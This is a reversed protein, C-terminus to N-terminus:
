ERTISEDLNLIVSALSTYAALDGADITGPAVSEGVDILAAAADADSSYTNRYLDLGERLVTLENETPQRGTALRFGHVIRPKTRSGGDEIMRQALNRAAEAYTVDNLLALAQLPTNTIGRRVICLDWGPSDFTTMTPPPVTRKRYTYLSRRYLNDGEAVKYPGEGAGGALEEWLGEPQYPKVSPGGIRRKLLGSVALANDRLVEATMRYRPASAYLTGAPDSELIHDSLVSSQRYTSSMAIRKLLGKVDWGSSVFDSALWDLLKPHTPPAGQLGFDESTKVLGRGFIMQWYRNVTVRATLPNRESVIWQALGLRNRPAEDPLPPLFAPIGPHLERTTDPADYAGRKLRYTPRPEKLEEMVMVTPISAKVYDSREKRVTRLRDGAEDIQFSHQFDFFDEIRENSEPSNAAILAVQIGNETLRVVDDEKLVEDFYRFDSLAGKFHAGTSRSGIRLPLDTHISDTLGDQEAKVPAPFGDIYVKVGDAKSSGDYTVCLHAWTGERLPKESVVKIANDPWANVIHVSIEGEDLILIDVGRHATADDMKSFLAGSGDRRVWMSVSYPRDREFAASAEVDIFAEPSGDFQLATGNLGDFASIGEPTDSDDRLDVTLAAEPVQGSSSQEKLRARWAEFEFPLAAKLQDISEQFSAISRDFEAVKVQSEFSPLSVIPGANGRTEEYFGRDATSNFFAFFEYFEEQSIPDYKHDHCRACGISLGLFMAGTTEVRDVINEIRWEDEISGGETNARNNRHFGTAIRQSDTADPLLDGALQEITFQDFPMNANFANIVWDRWPWMMRKFDNQYGNTDAYRAGDMWERAMHEGYDSSTLLQDVVNEYADDSEDELFADVMDLTPPLGTLDLALRRILTERTAEPSPELGATKLQALIFHDVGNRPWNNATVDPLTQNTVSAYSWHQAWPAGEDIWIRISEVQEPSLPARNSDPHPMRVEPDGSTIRRFIESVDADGAVIVTKKAEDEQDLRLNAKRQGSDPGHCAFCNEALIPLVDRAFDVKTNEPDAFAAGGTCLLALFIIVFNHAGFHRMAGIKASLQPLTLNAAELSRVIPKRVSSALDVQTVNIGIVYAIVRPWNLHNDVQVTQPRNAYSRLRWTSLM